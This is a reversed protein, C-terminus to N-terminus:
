DMDEEKPTEFSTGAVCPTNKFCYYATKSLRLDIYALSLREKPQIQHNLILSLANLQSAVPQQTDFFVSWGEQSVFQIEESAKGPIKAEKLPASIKSDWQKFMSLIFVIKKPSQLQEGLDFNEMVQDIVVPLGAPDPDKKAVLGQDDILFSSNNSFLVFGPDREVIKLELRNPWGRDFGAVEKILPISNKINNELRNKSLLFYNNQPVLATRKAGMNLVYVSVQEKPIRSTGSVEVETILLYESFIFLYALFILCAPIIFKLAIKKLNISLSFTKKSSPMPRALRRSSAQKIRNQFDRASFRSKGLPRKKNGFFFM